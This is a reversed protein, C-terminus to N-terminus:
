KFSVTMKKNSISKEFGTLVDVYYFKFYVVRNKFIKSSHLNLNYSKGNFFMSNSEIQDSKKVLVEGTYVDFMEYKVEGLNESILNRKTKTSKYHKESDIFDVELGIFRGDSEITRNQSHISITLNNNQDQNIVEPLNFTVTDNKINYKINNNSKLYYEINIKVSNNELLESQYKSNNIFRSVLVSNANKNIFLKKVGNILNGKYDYVSELITDLLPDDQAIKLINRQSKINNIICSNEADLILSIIQLGGNDQNEFVLKSNVNSYTIGQIEDDVGDGTILDLQTIIKNVLDNINNIESFGLLYENDTGPIKVLNDNNENTLTIQITNNYSDLVLFKLSRNAPLKLFNLETHTVIEDLYSINARVEYDQNFGTMQNNVLNSLYFVEPADLFRKKNHFFVNNFNSDKVEIEIKPTNIKNKLINSGLRKLFYTKNDFLNEYYFDLVFSQSLNVNNNKNLIFHKYYETIDFVVQEDGQLNDSLFSFYQIESGTDHTYTDLESVIKEKAWTINNKEDLFFFNSDGIDSLNYIDNGTGEEFDNKLVRLRLKYNKAHTSSSGVDSLKVLVRYDVSGDDNTKFVSTQLQNVHSNYLNSLDFNFLGASHEFVIFDFKSISNVDNLNLQIQKEGDSGPSNQEILIKDHELKFATVELNSNNITEIINSVFDVANLDFSIEDINAAGFNFVKFNDIADTIVIKDTTIINTKNNIVILGRAKIKKNKSAIKFLDISSSRGFNAYAGNNVKTYLDTVFTDKTSNEIIIM